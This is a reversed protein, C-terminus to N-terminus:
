DNFNLWDIEDVIRGFYHAGFLTHHGYDYFLKNGSKDMGACQILAGPCVYDMRDLFKIGLTSALQRLQETKTQHEFKRRKFDEAYATNVQSVLDEQLIHRNEFLVKDALTWDGSRYESFSFIQNVLVVKKNEKKLLNLVNPLTELDKSSFKSVVLVVSSAKFNPTNFLKHSKHLDRIQVGYRTINFEDSVKQSNTLVNFLDKSHSNGLLLLQPKGIDYWLNLDAANGALTYGSDNTLKQLPEWSELQNEQNEEFGLHTNIPNLYGVSGLNGSRLTVYMGLSLFLLTMGGYLLLPSAFSYISLNKQRLPTEVFRYSLGAVSFILVFCITLSQATPELYFIKNLAFIPQHWLYISYSLLGILVMVKRSLFFNVITKKGSSLLLLSAGTVPLMLYPGDFIVNESFTFVSGVILGFGIFGFAEHFNKHLNISMVAVLAGALLEWARFLPFYFVLEPFHSSLLMNGILSGVALFFFLIPLSYRNLCLLLFVPFVLYFQEEVALSWTHLLPKLSSASEFYGAELWFLLNSAFLNVAVVSQGYDLFQRSDMICYSLVTTIMVMFFLAPLLRRARREYFQILSFNDREIEDILIKTILFGSIVFFVDVGVFGGPFFPLDAHFLVVPLVAVARLGDIEPLYKKM